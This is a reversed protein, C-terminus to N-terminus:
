SLEAMTNQVPVVYCMRKTSSSQSQAGDVIDMNISTITNNSTEDLIIINNNINRQNLRNNSKNNNNNRKPPM